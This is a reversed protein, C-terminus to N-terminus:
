GPRPSMGAAPPTAPVMGRGSIESGADPSLKRFALVSAASIM